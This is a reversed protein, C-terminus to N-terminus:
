QPNSHFLLIRNVNYRAANFFLSHVHINMGQIYPVRHINWFVLRGLESTVVLAAEIRKFGNIRSKLLIMKDM